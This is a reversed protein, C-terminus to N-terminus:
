AHRIWRLLQGGAADALVVVAVPVLFAVCVMASLVASQGYHMFNYLRSLVPTMGPPALISSATLDFYAWCFLLFAVWFQRRSRLQWILRSHWRRVGSSTSSSLLEAAHIAEGPRLMHLVIRLLLGFPLVVLTLAILVPVPTDYMARLGPAQFVWVMGLSLVLPGLLGPASLCFAWALKRKASTAGLAVALFWGAVCYACVAAGTAFLVSALIDKGLVFESVLMRLGRAMGGLMVSAAAYAWALLGAGRGLDAPRRVPTASGGPVTLLLFLAALVLSAGVLTPFLSLRLSESLALGGAHADFLAVSWAKVGFLSAMEFEGFALLFVLVLAVLPGRFPGRLLFSVYSLLSRLGGEQRRLLRRCHVAEQSFLSPAFYVVVAAVPALKMVLLASYFLANWSPHRVLSLSFNSYAYGVLLSPTLYPALILTWAGLRARKGPSALLRSLPLALLVGLLGVSLGRALTWGYQGALNM